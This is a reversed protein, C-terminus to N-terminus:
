CRRHRRARAARRALRSAVAAVAHAAADRVPRVIGGRRLHRAGHQAEGASVRPRARRLGRQVHRRVPRHRDARRRDARVGRPRRTPWRSSASRCLSHAGGLVVGGHRLPRRGHRRVAADRGVRPEARRDRARVDRPGLAHRREDAAPLSRLRPAHGDRAYCSAAAVLVVTPTRWDARSTSM